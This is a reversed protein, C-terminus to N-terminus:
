NEKSNNIEIAESDPFWKNYFDLKLFRMPYNIYCQFVKNIQFFGQRFSHVTIISNKWENNQPNKADLKVRM